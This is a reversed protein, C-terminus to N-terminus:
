ETAQLLVDLNDYMLTIYNEGLTVEDRTLYGLPHLFLKSASPNEKQLERLLTDGAPSNANKEFLIYNIDNAIAYAVFEPYDTPTSEDDHSHANKTFPNIVLNYADEYYSFLKVNTIIPKTIPSLAEIYDTQLKELLKEVIMYNNNIHETEDPYSILLQDRVLSAMAQMREVDLWMHSDEILEADECVTDEEDHHHEDEDEDVHDHSMCVEIPDVYDSIKVLRVSGDNLTEYNVTIYPDLGAGVYILIDANQMDIIEKGSWDFGHGHATAGPVYKATTIDQGIMNVLYEIPYATVYVVPDSNTDNEDGCAYLTLALVLISLLALIRKM